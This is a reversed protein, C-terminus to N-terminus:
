ASLRRDLDALQPPSGVNEWVGRFHEGSVVGAHVFQFAWPFLKVKKGRPLGDFIAPHFVAINGYNLKPGADLTVRGDVLAVDGGPHFPPNDTLVFHAMYGPFSAAIAAVRPALRGYDFDTYIDASVLAFPEAAGPTALGAGRGSKGDTLLALAEVIAGLTELAEPEHSYRVSAGFKAGFAAGDGLEAEIRDGLWSHNIVLEDFGGAVLREIQWAILPKGAVELLPKPTSDTLPRMREGRGAALIMAKM